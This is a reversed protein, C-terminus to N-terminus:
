EVFKSFDDSEEYNSYGYLKQLRRDIGVYGGYTRFPTLYDNCVLRLVQNLPGVALPTYGLSREQSSMPKDPSIFRSTISIRINKDSHGTTSHILLAHWMVLDGAKMHFLNLKEPSVNASPDIARNRVPTMGYTHSQPCVTLGNYDDVDTFFTKAFITNVSTGTWADIHLDKSLVPNSDQPVNIWLANKGLIAVDPGLYKKMVNVVGPSESFSQGLSSQEYRDIIAVAWGHVDKKKLEERNYAGCLREYREMFFKRSDEILRPDHIGEYIVFGNKVFAEIASSDDVHYKKLRQDLGM